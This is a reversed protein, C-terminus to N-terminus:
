FDKYRIKLNENDNKNKKLEDLILGGAVDKGVVSFISAEVGLNILNRFVNGCGGLSYKENNCQVIPVPAEPSVRNVSGFIFRDLMIDGLVLIKPSREKIREIITM